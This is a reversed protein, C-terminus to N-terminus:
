NGLPAEMIETYLGMHGRALAEAARQNRDWEALKTDIESKLGIVDKNKAPLTDLSKRIESLRSMHTHGQDVLDDFSGGLEDVKDAVEAAKM